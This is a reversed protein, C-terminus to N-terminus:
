WKARFVLLFSQIQSYTLFIIVIKCIHSCLIFSNLTRAALPSIALELVYNSASLANIALMGLSSRCDLLVYDYGQGVSDVYQRTDNGPEHDGGTGGGRCGSKRGTWRLVPERYITTSKGVRGKQSAVSIVKPKAM